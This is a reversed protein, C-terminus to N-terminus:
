WFLNMEKEDQIGVHKPIKSKWNITENERRDAADWGTQRAAMYEFIRANGYLIFSDCEKIRNVAFGIYNQKCWYLDINGAERKKYEQNEIPQKM